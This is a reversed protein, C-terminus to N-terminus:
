GIRLMAKVAKKEAVAAFAKEYDEFDWEGSLLLDTPIKGSRAWDILEPWVATEDPGLRQVSFKQPAKTMAFRYDETSVGYLALTGENKLWQLCHKVAAPSGAAEVLYDLGPPPEDPSTETSLALDAGLQRALKLREERRGFVVVTEAGQSKAFLAMALGAIGTGLIGVTKGRVSGMAQIFSANEGLSVFLAATELSIDPPIVMPAQNSATALNGGSARVAEVDEALGYESFGGWWSSPTDPDNSRWGARSVRDGVQFSTVESGIEVVKGVSEHGLVCPYSPPWPFENDIILRDTTNCILCAEIKVLAEYPGPQPLPLDRIELKGPEPVVLAKM